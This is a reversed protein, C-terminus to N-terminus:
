EEFKQDNELTESKNKKRLVLRVIYFIVIGLLLFPLIATSVIMIGGFSTLLANASTTWAKGIMTKGEPKEKKVGDETLTITLTSLAVQEELVDKQGQLSEIQGRLNFIQEQINATDYATKANKLLDNLVVERERMIKLRADYDIGDYTRDVSNVSESVLTGLKHLTVLTDDLKESPIRVTITSVRKSSESAEIYSGEPLLKVVKEYQKNVSGRKITIEITGSKIIQNGKPNGVSPITEPVISSPDDIVMDQSSGTKSESYVTKSQYDDVKSKEGSKPSLSDTSVGGSSLSKTGSTTGVESYQLQGVLYGAILMIAIASTILIKKM